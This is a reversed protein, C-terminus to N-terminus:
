GKDSNVSGTSEFEIKEQCYIEELIYNYDADTM